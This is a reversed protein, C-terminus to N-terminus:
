VKKDELALPWFDIVPLMIEWTQLKKWFECERPEVCCCVQLFLLLAETGLHTLLGGDVLGTCGPASADPSGCFAPYKIYLVFTLRSFHFGAWMGRSGLQTVQCLAARQWSVSSGDEKWLLAMQGYPTGLYPLPPKQAQAPCPLRPSSSPM